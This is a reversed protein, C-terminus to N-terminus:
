VQKPTAEFPINGYVLAIVIGGLGQEIAHLVVNMLVAKLSLVTTMSYEILNCPLFWLVSIILGFKLGQMIKNSGEVGKPYLYSMIFALLLLAIISYQMLMAPRNLSGAIGTHNIFWDKFIVLHTLGGVAFMIVFAALTALLLKKANM